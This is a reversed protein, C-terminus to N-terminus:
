KGIELEIGFLEAAGVNVVTTGAAPGESLVALDGAIYDVSIRHRIFILPEPNTYAWTDGRVDYIVSAYPLIKRVVQSHGDRPPTVPAERVTATEIGLREAAKATLIVRRLDTGPVPEVKAPETKRATDAPAPNPLGAIIVVVVMWRMIRIMGIRMEPRGHLALANM